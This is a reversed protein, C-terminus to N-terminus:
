VHFDRIGEMQYLKEYFDATEAYAYRHIAQLPHFTMAMGSPLPTEELYILLQKKKQENAYYIERCCFGSNLYNRSIFSFFCGCGEIHHAINDPWESGPDIGEDFWIRYGDAGLHRV